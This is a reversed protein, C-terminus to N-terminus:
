MIFNFAKRAKRLTYDVDAWNLDSRIIIGLYKLSNAEPVLQDGFYHRIREKVSAKTFSVARNKGPNVKMENEVAWEEIARSM